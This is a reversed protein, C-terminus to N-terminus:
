EPRRPPTSCVLPAPRRDLPTVGHAFSTLRFRWRRYPRRETWRTALGHAQLARCEVPCVGVKTVHDEDAVTTPEAILDDNFFILVM